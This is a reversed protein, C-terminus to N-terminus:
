FHRAISIRQRQGGSLGIGREGIVTNWGNPFSQIFGLANAAEAAAELEQSTADLKAYRVNEEITGSFM